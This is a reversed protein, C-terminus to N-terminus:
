CQCSRFCDWSAVVHPLPCKCSLKPQKALRGTFLLTTPGGGRGVESTATNWALATPPSKFGTAMPTATCASDLLDISYIGASRPSCPLPSVTLFM